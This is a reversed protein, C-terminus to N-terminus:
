SYFLIMDSGGLIDREVAKAKPYKEDLPMRSARQDTGSDASCWKLTPTFKAEKAVNSSFLVLDDRSREGIGGGDTFSHFFLPGYERRSAKWWTYWRKMKEGEDWDADTTFFIGNTMGMM